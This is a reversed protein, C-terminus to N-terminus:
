PFELRIASLEDLTTAAAIAKYAANVAAQLDPDSPSHGDRILQNYQANIAQRQIVKAADLDVVIKKDVLRWAGRFQRTPLDDENVEIYPLGDLGLRIIMRELESDDMDFYLIQLTEDLNQFAFIRM